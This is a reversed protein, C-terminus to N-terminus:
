RSKMSKLILRLYAAFLAILLIGSVSWLWSLISPSVWKAAPIVLIATGAFMVTGGFAWALAHHLQRKRAEFKRGQGVLSELFTRSQTYAGKTAFSTQNNDALSQVIDFYVTWDENLFCASTRHQYDDQKGINYFVEAVSREIANLSNALAQLRIVAIAVLLASGAAITQALSSFYYFWSNHM